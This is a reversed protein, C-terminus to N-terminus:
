VPDINIAFVVPITSTAAKAAFTANIASTVIVSMNRGVLEAVLTSLRVSQGESWAYDITLNHGEVFGAEALGKRVGDVLFGVEAATSDRLFGIVPMAPKQARAALPWTAAAGLLTIFDRRRVRDGRRRDTPPPYACRSRAHTGNARQHRTRVQEIACRAFRCPECGQPHPRCLHWSSSLCGRHQNWLEDAWGSRCPRSEFVVHSDRPTGGSHCAACAPRRIM